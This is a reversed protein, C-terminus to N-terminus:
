RLNQQFDGYPVMGGISTGLDRMFPGALKKIDIISIGEVESNFSRSLDIAYDVAVLSTDSSDIPVLITKFM